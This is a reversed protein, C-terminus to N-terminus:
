SAPLEGDDMFGQLLTRLPDLDLDTSGETLTPAPAPGCALPSVLCVALIILHQVRM